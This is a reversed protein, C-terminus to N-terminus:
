ADRRITFLKESESLKMSISSLPLGVGDAIEVAVSIADELPEEALEWGKDTGVTVYYKQLGTEENREAPKIFIKKESM